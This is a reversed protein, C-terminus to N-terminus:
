AAHRSRRRALSCPASPRRDHECCDLAPLPDPERSTVFRSLVDAVEALSYRPSRRIRVPRLVGDSRMRQVTRVSCGLLKAVDSQRLTGGISPVIGHEACLKRLEDITM